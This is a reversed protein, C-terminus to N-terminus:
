LDWGASVPCFILHEGHWALPDSVLIADVVWGDGAWGVRLACLEGKKDRVYFINAYGGTQLFGAQGKPQRQLFAFAAAFTGEVKGAGGLEAIIPADASTCLLKYKRYALEASSGETKDFFRNKFEAFVTSFQVVTNQKFYNRILIPETSAPVLATELPELLATRRDLQDIMLM